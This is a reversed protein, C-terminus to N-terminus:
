GGTLPPFFAVEAGPKLMASEDVLQQNIAARLACDPAFAESWVNGRGALMLRLERLDRVSPELVITETDVGLTERLSAFYRMTIQM